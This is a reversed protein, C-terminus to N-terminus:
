LGSSNGSIYIENETQCDRKSKQGNVVVSTPLRLVLMTYLIIQDTKLEHCPVTSSLNAITLAKSTLYFLLALGAYEGITLIM